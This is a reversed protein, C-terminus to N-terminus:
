WFIQSSDVEEKEAGGTLALLATQARLVAQPWTGACSFSVM